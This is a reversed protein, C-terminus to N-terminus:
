LYLNGNKKSLPHSKIYEAVKPLIIDYFHIRKYVSRGRASPHICTVAYCSFDMTTFQRLYAMIEDDEIGDIPNLLDRCGIISNKGQFLIVDPQIISIEALLHPKCNWYYNWSLHNSSDIRCCKCTNVMAMYDVLKTPEDDELFYSLAKYTGRMHPHLPKSAGSVVDATRSEIVEAGGNGCDLAAVLVRMKEGFRSGIHCQMGRALKGTKDTESCHNLMKYAFCDNPIIGERIYYDRLNHKVIESLSMSHIISPSYEIRM